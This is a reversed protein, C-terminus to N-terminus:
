GSREDGERRRSVTNSTLRLWALSPRDDSGPVVSIMALAAPARGRRGKVEHHLHRLEGATLALEYGHHHGARSLAWWLYTAQQAMEAGAYKRLMMLAAGNADSGQLIVVPGTPTGTQILLPRVGTHQGENGAQSEPGVCPHGRASRHPDRSPQGCRCPRRQLPSPGFRRMIAGLVAAAAYLVRVVRDLRSPETPPVEKEDSDM